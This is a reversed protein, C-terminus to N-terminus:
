GTVLGSTRWKAAARIGLVLGVGLGLKMRWRIGSGSGSELLDLELLTGLGRPRVDLEALDPGREVERYAAHM